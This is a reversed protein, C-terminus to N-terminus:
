STNSSYEKIYDLFSRRLTQIYEDVNISDNDKFFLVLCQSVIGDEDIVKLVITSFGTESSYKEIYYTQQGPTNCFKSETSIYTLRSLLKSMLDKDTNPNYPSVTFYIKDIHEVSFPEGNFLRISTRDPADNCILHSKAHKTGADLKQWTLEITPDTPVFRIVAASIM